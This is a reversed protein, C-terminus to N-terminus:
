CDMRTIAVESPFVFLALELLIQHICMYPAKEGTKRQWSSRCTCDNLRARSNSKFLLYKEGELSLSYFLDYDELSLCYPNQELTYLAVRFSQGM